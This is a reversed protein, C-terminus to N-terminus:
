EIVKINGKGKNEVVVAAAGGKYYVDGTHKITAYVSDTACVTVDGTTHSEVRAVKATLRSADVISTYRADIDITDARGSLTYEGSGNTIELALTPANSKVDLEGIYEEFVYRQIDVTDNSSVKVCARAFINCLLSFHCEIKPISKNNRVIGSKSNDAISLTSTAEDLDIDINDILNEGYKVIAYDRTDKVLEIHANNKIVLNQYPKLTVTDTAAEGESKLFDPLDKNDCSMSLALAAVLTLYSTKKM